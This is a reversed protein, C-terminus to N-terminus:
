VPKPRRVALAMLSALGLGFWALLAAWYVIELWLRPVYKITVDSEGAPVPFMALNDPSREVPVPQGNVKARYGPLWLRPTELYAPEPSRVIVHYPAWSKVAVPLTAPDYCWLEYRAFDFGPDIPREGAIVIWRPQDQPALRTFLPIIPVSTPLTGFSRPEGRRPVNAGSDPLLYERFVDQGLIQLWGPQGPDLPELWLALPIGAPLALKPSLNYYTTRNDNVARFTGHALLASGHPDAAPLAGKRAASELNSALPSQNRRLLRHELVPDMYGHSFSGPAQEFSAYSYRTLLLNHRRRLPSDQADTTITSRAKVHLRAVEQQSWWLFPLSLLFLALWTRAPRGPAPSRCVTAFLFVILSGAIPMLRQMPWANTIQAVIDPARTWLYESVVPVPLTFVSVVVLSGVFAGAAWSPRRPLAVLAVALVALLAFGTQYDSPQNLGQSLPRFNAPFALVTEYWVSSTDVELRTVNDLTVASLLPWAGLLLFGGVGVALRAPEGRGRHVAIKGLYALAAVLSAWLAVPSHALWLGAVGAALVGPALLDNREYARWLGYGVVPLFPLAMFTMYQDGIFLPALTAPSFLLILALVSATTPRHALVARLFFYGSYALAVANVALVLNKLAMYDLSRGTLQDLLGGVHQFWPALRLPSYAGNFAFETQGLWVPFAGLRIQEAYDALMLTYWNADGAGVTRSTYYPLIVYTAAALLVGLRLSEALNERGSALGLRRLVLRALGGLLGAAAALWLAFSWPTAIGAERGALWAAAALSLFCALGAAVPHLRRERISGTGLAGALAAAAAFSAAFLVPAPGPEAGRFVAGAYALWGATMADLLLRDPPFWRSFSGAGSPESM